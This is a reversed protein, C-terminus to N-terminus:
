GRGRERIKTYMSVSDHGVVEAFADGPEGGIGKGRVGAFFGGDFGFLNDESGFRFHVVALRPFPPTSEDEEETSHEPDHNRSEKCSSTIENIEGLKPFQTHIIQEVHQRGPKHTIRPVQRYTNDNRPFFLFNPLSYPQSRSLSSLPIRHVIIRELYSQIEDYL